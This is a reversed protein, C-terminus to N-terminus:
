AHHIGIQREMDSITNTVSAEEKAQKMLRAKERDEAELIERRVKWPMNTQKPEIIEPEKLQIIPEDKKFLERLLERNMDQSQSLQLGLVQCTPCVRKLEEEQVCELCHPNM